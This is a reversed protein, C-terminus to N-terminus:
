LSGEAPVLQAHETPEIYSRRGTGSGPPRAAVRFATQRRTRRCQQGHDECAQEMQEGRPQVLPVSFQTKCAPPCSRPLRRATTTRVTLAILIRAPERLAICSQARTKAPHTRITVPPSKARNHNLSSTGAVREPCAGALRSTAPSVIFGMWTMSRDTTRGPMIIMPTSARRPFWFPNNKVRGASTKEM